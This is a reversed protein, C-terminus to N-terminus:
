LNALVTKEVSCVGGTLLLCNELLKWREWIGFAIM